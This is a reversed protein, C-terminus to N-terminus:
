HNGHVDFEMWCDVGVQSCARPELGPVGIVGTGFLPVGGPGLRRSSVILHVTDVLGADFLTRHIVAGGEVLVASVDFALLARLGGAIDDGSPVVTAGADRLAAVRDAADHMARASTLIIVPGDPLTSLLRATPPTRLRRDFVARVLPRVRASDRVTLLPDDVLVTGSGVAVADVVARLRQSRRNAAAGSVQTRAGPSAAIFGDASTAAKVIVEPRGLTQVTVFARNLRRADDELVGVDVRIGAAQLEAIGKGNVLPNPDKMAVVVRAVGSEIVRTTCPATRGYHCCPELTVFLTGGRARPGAEDLAFVEAHPAGARPHRGQGVVVGDASVVVAGVLPNPTTVGAARAAHFLARRMLDSDTM